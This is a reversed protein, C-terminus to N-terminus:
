GSGLAIVIISTKRVKKRTDDKTSTCITSIGKKDTKIGSALEDPQKMNYERAWTENLCFLFLDYYVVDTM